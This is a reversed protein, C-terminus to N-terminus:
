YDERGGFFLRATEASEKMHGPFAEHPEYVQGTPCRAAHTTADAAGSSCYSPVTFIGEPITSTGNQFIASSFVKYKYSGGM